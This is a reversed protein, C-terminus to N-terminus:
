DNELQGGKIPLYGGRLDYALHLLDGKYLTIKEELRLGGFEESPTFEVPHEDSTGMFTIIHGKAQFINNMPISSLKTIGKEKGRIPVLQIPVHFVPIVGESEIICEERMRFFGEHTTEGRWANFRSITEKNKLLRIEALHRHASIEKKIEANTMGENIVLKAINLHGLALRYDEPDQNYKKLFQNFKKRTEEDVKQEGFHIDFEGSLVNLPRIGSLFVEEDEDLFVEWWTKGIIGYHLDLDGFDVDMSFDRLMDETLKLQRRDWFEVIVASFAEESEINRHMSELDHVCHNLKSIASQVLPSSARYIDSPNHADGYLVEFHHHIINAFEQDFYGTGKEEIKYSGEANIIAIAKNLDDFVKKKEEESTDFGTFRAYLPEQRDMLRKLEKVWLWAYDKDAVRWELTFVKGSKPNQFDIELSYTSNEM